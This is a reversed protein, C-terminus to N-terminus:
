RSEAAWKQIMAEVEELSYGEGRDSQGIAKQVGAVFSIKEAIEQLPTDAPLKNLLDMVM